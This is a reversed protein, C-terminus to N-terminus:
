KRSQFSSVAADLATFLLIIGSSSYFHSLFLDPIVDLTINRVGANDCPHYSILITKDPDLKQRNQEFWKGTLSIVFVMQSWGYAEEIVAEEAARNIEYVTINRQYMLTSFINAATFGHVGTIVSIRKYGALERAIEELETTCLKEFAMAYWDCTKGCWQNLYEKYNDVVVRKRHSAILDYGDDPSKLEGYGSYGLKRCFKTVSAPTVNASYSIEEIKTHQIDEAKELMTKAIDFNADKKQCKYIFENLLIILTPKIKMPEENVIM